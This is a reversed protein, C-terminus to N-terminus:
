YDTSYDEYSFDNMVPDYGSCGAAAWCSQANMADGYSEPDAYRSFCSDIDSCGAAADGGGGGGSGFWQQVQQDGYWLALMGIVFEQQDGAAAQAWNAQVRSWIERAAGLAAQEDPSFSAFAQSMASVYEDLEQQSLQVPYGVQEHAFVLAEFFAMANDETLTGHAGEALVSDNANAGSSPALPNAPAAGGGSIRQTRYTAGGSNVTLVDGSLTATFAFSQGGSTFAGELRGDGGSADFPLRQGSLILEGTYSGSGGQVVVQLGDGEFTGVLADVPALPNGGGRGMSGGNGASSGSGAAGSAGVELGYTAPQPLLNLVYVYLITGPPAQTTYVPNPDESTDLFDADDLNDIQLGANVALDLDSGMGDVQITISGAGAPIEVIYTHFILNEGAPAISQQVSQGVAVQGYEGSPAGQGLAASAVTAVLVLPRLDFWPFRTRM